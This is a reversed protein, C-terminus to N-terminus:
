SNFVFIRRDGNNKNSKVSNKLALVAEDYYKRLEYINEFGSSVGVFIDNERFFDGYKALFRKSNFANHKSSMIMVIYGSYIAFKFSKSKEVLLDKIRALRDARAGSQGIDVVALHLFSEFGDYLVQVHPAYLRTDKIEGDLIKVFLADHYSRGYETYHEDDRIKNTIKDAFATFAILDDAHLETNCGVMVLNAVKIHDRNFANALVRDYKLEDSKLVTLRDANSVYYTFYESAFFEQTELSFTGTSILENWLPDDTVVDTHAILFYNMDFMAIPNLLIASAADLLQQISLSKKLARIQGLRKM